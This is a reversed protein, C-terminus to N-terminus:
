SDDIKYRAEQRLSPNEVPKPPTEQLPISHSSDDIKYRSEQRLSPNEVPKPPTEQLPIPHGLDDFCDQRTGPFAEILQKLMEPDERFVTMWVSLFGKLKAFDIVKERPLRNEQLLNFFEIAMNWAEMRELWRRDSGSTHKDKDSPTNGPHRDLGTLDLTKQAKQKQTENLRSNVEVIGGERYEFISWTNDSDPWYYYNLLTEPNPLTGGKESKWEKQMSHSKISNCVKCSLLFNNWENEREPYEKKPLLHEVDLSSYTLKTECYSCYSGLRRELDVKAERYDHFKKPVGGADTPCLGRDVPRM